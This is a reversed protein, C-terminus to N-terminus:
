FIEHSLDELPKLAAFPDDGTVARLFGAGVAGQHTAILMTMTLIRRTSPKDFLPALANRIRDRIDKSDFLDLLINRLDTKPGAHPARLGAGKCLSGFATVDAGSM